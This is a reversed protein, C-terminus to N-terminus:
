VRDMCHQIEVRAAGAVCCASQYGAQPDFLRLQWDNMAVGAKSMLRVVSEAEFRVEVQDLPLLLGEGSAKLYAEKCTWIKYFAIDKENGVLSGLWASEAGTFFRRALDDMDALPLIEEIDVGIQRGLCFGMLVLDGSHSVNFELPCGPRLGKVTPKGHAKYEFAIAAPALGLYSGILMRLLGRGVIFHDRAKEFFFKEARIKEDDSLLALCQARELKSVALSLHWLHVENHALPRTGKSLDPLSM